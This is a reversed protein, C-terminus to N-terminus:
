YTIVTRMNQSCSSGTLNLSAPSHVLAGSVSPRPGKGLPQAANTLSDRARVTTIFLHYLFISELLELTQSLRLIECTVFPLYCHEGLSSIMVYKSLQQLCFGLHERQLHKGKADQIM